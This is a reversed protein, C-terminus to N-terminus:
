NSHKCGQARPSMTIERSARDPRAFVGARPKRPKGPRARCTRGRPALVRDMAQSFARLRASEASKQRQDTGTTHAWDRGQAHPEEAAHHANLRGRTSRWQM